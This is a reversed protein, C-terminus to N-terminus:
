YKTSCRAAEQPSISLIQRPEYDAAWPQKNVRQKSTPNRECDFQQVREPWFLFRRKRLRGRIESDQGNRDIRPELTASYPLRKHSVRFLIGAPPSQRKHVEGHM